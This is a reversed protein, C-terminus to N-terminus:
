SPYRLHPGTLGVAKMMLGVGYGLTVLAGVATLIYIGPLKVREIPYEAAVVHSSAGKEESKKAKIRRHTWNLVRGTGYAGLGSAVGSPIYILGTALSDLGYAARAQVGLSAQLNMKVNELVAIQPTSLSNSLFGNGYM